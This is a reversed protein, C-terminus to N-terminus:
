YLKDYLFISKFILYVFFILINGFQWSGNPQRLYLMKAQFSSIEVFIHVTLLNYTGSKVKHHFM